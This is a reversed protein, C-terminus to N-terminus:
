QLPETDYAINIQHTRGCVQMSKVYRRGACVLVYDNEATAEGLVEGTEPDSVTVKVPRDYEGRRTRPVLPLREGPAIM